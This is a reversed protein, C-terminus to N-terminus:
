RTKDPPRYKWHKRLTRAKRLDVSLEKARPGSAPFTVRITGQGHAKGLATRGCTINGGVTPDVKSECTEDITTMLASAWYEVDLSIGRKSENDLVERTGEELANRFHQTAAASAIIKMDEVAHPSFGDSESFHGLWARGDAASIGFLVELGGAKHAQTRWSEALIEQIMAALEEYTRTRGLKTALAAFADEGAAVGGAYTAICPEVIGFLKVAGDEHKGSPLTWRSDAALVVSPPMGAKLAVQIGPSELLRKWPFLAGVILTM